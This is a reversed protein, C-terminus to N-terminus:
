IGLVKKAKDTRYVRKAEEVTMGVNNAAVGAWLLSSVAIAIETGHVQAVTSLIEDVKSM